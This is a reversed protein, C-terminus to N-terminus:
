GPFALEPLAIGPGIDTATFSAKPLVTAEEVADIDIAMPVLGLPPVRLPVVVFFATEPTAENLSKLM